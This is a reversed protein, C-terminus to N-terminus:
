PKVAFVVNMFSGLTMDADSAIKYTLIGGQLLKVETFVTKDYFTVYYDLEAAPLIPLTTTADLSSVSSFPDSLSFQKKYSDYLRVTFVGGNETIISPDTIQDKSTPMVISPMYFFKPMAAKLEKIIDEDISVTYEVENGKVKTDVKVGAGASVIAKEQNFQIEQATLLAGLDEDVKIINKENASVIKATVETDKENKYKLGLADQKLTTVTENPLSVSQLHGSTNMYKLQNEGPDYELNTKNLSLDTANKKADVYTLTNTKENYTISGTGLDLVHPTGKEDQYKLQNSGSLYDLVTLTENTRVIDGLMVTQVIGNSNTYNLAKKDPNYELNTKNLSLDTTGGKADVYTLTNTKENYTISGTGLDLVHPTGKEDQYKLQNSGSLYDLVTLTENKRVIDDLTVTQVVGNSNTYNLTKKEPNYALNTNNLNLDTVKGKADVYSLMNSKDNYALSGTGLD